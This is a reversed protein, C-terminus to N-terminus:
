LARIDFIVFIISYEVTCCHQLWNLRVEEKSYQASVRCDSYGSLKNMKSTGSRLDSDEHSVRCTRQRRTRTRSESKCSHFYEAMTRNYSYPTLDMAPPPYPAQM